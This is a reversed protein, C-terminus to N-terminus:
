VQINYLICILWILDVSDFRVFNINDYALIKEKHKETKYEINNSQPWKIFDFLALGSLKNGIYRETNIGIIKRAEYIKFKFSLHLKDFNIKIKVIKVNFKIAPNHHPKSKGEIIMEYINQITTRARVDVGFSFMIYSVTKNNEIKRPM